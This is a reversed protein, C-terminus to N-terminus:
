PPSAPVPNGWWATHRGQIFEFSVNEVAKVMYGANLRFYQKLGEVKLLPEAQKNAAM